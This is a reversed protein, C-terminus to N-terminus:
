EPQKVWALGRHPRSALGMANYGMGLAAGIVVITLAGRLAGAIAPDNSQYELTTLLDVDTAPDAPTAERLAPCADRGGEPCVDSVRPSDIAWALGRAISRSRSRGT